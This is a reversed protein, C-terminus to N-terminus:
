RTRSSPGTCGSGVQVSGALVSAGVNGLCDQFNGSLKKKRRSLRLLEHASSVCVSGLREWTRRTWVASSCVRFWPNGADLSRLQPRIWHSGLCIRSRDRRKYIISILLRSPPDPGIRSKSLPPRPSLRSLLFRCLGLSEHRVCLSAPRGSGHQPM